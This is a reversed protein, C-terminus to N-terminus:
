NDRIEAKLEGRLADMIRAQAANVEEDTLTREASRYTLAYAMSKRERGLEDSRFIDFLNVGTLEDPGNMRVIQEIEAHRVGEGVVVALDRSVSPYSPVPAFSEVRFVETLLPDLNFEAVGVPEQMRWRHGVAASILGLFGIEVGEQLVALCWGKELGPQASDRWEIGTVHRGELLIEVLGKIRLFVTERTLPKREQLDVGTVPGMIGLCLHDSDGVCGDGNRRFVRGIEFCAAQGVQHALNRGLSEVMQPLLANRMLGQDASVPDPLVVREGRPDDGFLDLLVDSVFSYNMTETLGMAVLAQRCAMVARPRTDDADPVIRGMPVSEVVKDLGHLRAVEEIIDAEIELDPRFSPAEVTFDADGQEVVPLELSELIRVSEERPVDVGLLSQMRAVRCTIRRPAPKGPFVDIVGAAARGGSLELMLRMARRGAWDVNMVDVNREFRHSSETSLGLAVSTHHTLAPDFRASELLVTETTDNIESGAGGMIGAVAVPREADAIVLMDTSLARPEDDLTQMTEGQAARRVIIRRGTLLAHDFAHLPQGCELMVYNTVDVINNIARVGCHALRRRLWLPGTALAAGTLVRATYRPCGQADDIRVGAWSEVPEGDEVYEVPPLKLPLRYLAAIERAMGIVSLCDPRNWTVELELVTEIGGLAHLLPTGPATDPPLLMIGSHDDSLGLEDEACLMGRSLEGRLRAERITMGNPLTCGVPALAVRDGVGFNEAGCVVPLKEAGSDVVCLQLRDAKPHPQMELVRGVVVDECGEGVRQIGEVETGSFTLREAIDEPTAEVDVYDKLWSLPIKM